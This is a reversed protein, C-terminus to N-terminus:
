VNKHKKKAHRQRGEKRSSWYFLSEKTASDFATLRLLLLAEAFYAKRLLQNEYDEPCQALMIKRAVLLQEMREREARSVGVDALFVSIMKALPTKVPRRSRAPKLVLRLPREALEQDSVEEPLIQREHPSAQWFDLYAYDLGAAAESKFFSRPLNGILIALFLVAASLEHGEATLRDIERLTRELRPWVEARDEKLATSLIPLLYPLLGTEDLLRFSERAAGGRLERQFEEYVRAPSCLKILAKMRVIASRTREEVIFGTRAAHRIARIMRVPDEQLRVEPDGIIRIIGRELDDIGGVYDIVSFTELDYFLANITLDRRIADTQADGYTNDPALMNIPSEPENETSDRFTAVEIIKNGRFYVHNIRFRRGIIRSNRFLTRVAEPPADTALDFDKPTKGLLLDRVGGGVLFAKYGHRILRQMVKMADEDLNRRSICHEGRTLIRPNGPLEPTRPRFQRLPAEEREEGRTRKRSEKPRRSRSTRTARKGESM